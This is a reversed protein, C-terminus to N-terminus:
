VTVTVESVSLSNVIVLFASAVTSRSHVTAPSLRYPQGLLPVQYVRGFEVCTMVFRAEPGAEDNDRRVNPRLAELFRGPGGVNLTDIRLTVRVRARECPKVMM